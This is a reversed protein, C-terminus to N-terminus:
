FKVINIENSVSSAGEPLGLEVIEVQFKASASTPEM